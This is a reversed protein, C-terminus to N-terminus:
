LLEMADVLVCGGGTIRDRKEEEEKRRRTPRRVTNRKLKERWGCQM